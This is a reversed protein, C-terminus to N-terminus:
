QCHRCLFRPMLHPCEAAVATATVKDDLDRQQHPQFRREFEARWSPPIAELLSDLGIADIFKRRQDITSESWALSSLGASRRSKEAVLDEPTKSHEARDAAPKPDPAPKPIEAEARDAKAKVEANSKKIADIGNRVDGVSLSEGGKARAIIETKAEKPTSPKALLYLGSVPLNLDSFKESKALEHAQIFNLATRNTWRFERELWPGWNGHGCLKKSENLRRGIEIVDGVVRKGLRRIVEAHHTLALSKVDVAPSIDLM